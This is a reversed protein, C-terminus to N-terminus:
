CQRSRPVWPFQSRSSVFMHSVNASQKIVPVNRREAPMAASSEIEERVVDKAEQKMLSSTSQREGHLSCTQPCSVTLLLFLLQRHSSRLIVSLRCM